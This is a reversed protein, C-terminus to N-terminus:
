EYLWGLVWIFPSRPGKLIYNRFNYWLIFFSSKQIIKWQKRSSSEPWRKMHVVLYSKKLKINRWLFLFKRMSEMSYLSTKLEVFFQSFSEPLRCIMKFYFFEARRKRLAKGIENLKLLSSEVSPLPNRLQNFGSLNQNKQM